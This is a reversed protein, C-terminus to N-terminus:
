AKLIKILKGHQREEARLETKDLGRAEFWYGDAFVYKKWGKM